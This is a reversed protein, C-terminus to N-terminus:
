YSMWFRREMGQDYLVIDACSQDHENFVRNQGLFSMETCTIFYIVSRSSSVTLARCVMFHNRSSVAKM